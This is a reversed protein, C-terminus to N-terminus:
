LCPDRKKSEPHIIIPDNAEAPTHKIELLSPMSYTCTNSTQSKRDLDCLPQAMVIKMGVNKDTFSFDAGDWTWDLPYTSGWLSFYGTGDDSLHLYAGDLAYTEKGASCSTVYYDGLPLPILNEEGAGRSGLLSRPTRQPNRSPGAVVHVGVDHGVRGIAGGRARGAPEGGM